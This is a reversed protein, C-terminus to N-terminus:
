IDPIPISLKLGATDSTFIFNTHYVVNLDRQFSSALGIMEDTYGAHHILRQHEWTIWWSKSEDM